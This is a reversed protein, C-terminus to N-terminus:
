FEGLSIRPLLGDVDERRLFGAVPVMANAAACAAGLRAADPLAVGDLIAAATGAAFADGSGIPSVARIAPAAIRWFKKGDSVVAGEKGMTVIAWAPGRSILERIASKLGANDDISVGLTKALEARNPKVVMPRASLALRLAEGSGDVMCTVGRAHAEQACWAYFHANAGPPLSGSLVLMKAKTLHELFRERLTEWAAPEVPHSEEVLETATANTEDVITICTRTKGARVLEHASGARELVSRLFDGTAGGAFGLAV